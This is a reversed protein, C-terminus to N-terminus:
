KRKLTGKELNLVMDKGDLIQVGLESSSLIDIKSDNKLQKKRATDTLRIGNNSFIITQYATRVVWYNENGVTLMEPLALIKEEATLPMWGNYPTGNQSYLVVTNDNHLIMFSYEKDNNFDYVKPGLVIEKKLDMPFGEDVVWRGLRDLLHLKTGSAMLMQLKNNKYIDIQGVYGCLPSSFDVSWVLRKRDDLLRLKNNDLQQLYNTKKNLFNKVNYPGQPVKVKTTDDKYAIFQEVNGLSVLGFLDAGDKQSNCDLYLTGLNFKRIGEVIVDAYEPKFIQKILDTYSTLNLYYSINSSRKEPTKLSIPELNSGRVIAQVATNSGIVCWDDVFACTDGFSKYELEKNKVKLMLVTEKIKSTPITVKAFEDIDLSLFWEQSYPNKKKLSQLYQNYADYLEEPSSVRVSFAELTNPPLISYLDSKASKQDKFISIFEEAELKNKNEGELEINSEDVADIELASLAAFTRAFDANKLRDYNITGSYFKGLNAHNIMLSMDKGLFNAIEEVGETTYFSSKNELHRISSELLVLSPSAILFNGYVAYSIKPAICKNVLTEGYRKKTVGSMKAAIDAAIKKYDKGEPLALAFLLSVTNKATYHLSFSSAGGTISEDLASVFRLIGSKPDVINSFNSKEDLFLSNFRTQEKMNLVVIADSPICSVVDTREDRVFEDSQPRYLEIIIYVAMSLLFAALISCFIVIRRNM